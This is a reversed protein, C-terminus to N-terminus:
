RTDLLIDDAQLRVTFWFRTWTVDSPPGLFTLKLTMRNGSRIFLIKIKFDRLRGMEAHKLRSDLGRIFAGLRACAPKMDNPEGLGSESKDFLDNNTSCGIVYCRTEM